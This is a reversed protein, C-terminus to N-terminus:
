WEREVRVTALGGRLEVRVSGSGQDVGSVCAVVSRARRELELGGRGNVWSTSGLGM